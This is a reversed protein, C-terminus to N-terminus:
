GTPHHIHNERGRLPKKSMKRKRRRRWRKGKIQKQGRGNEM